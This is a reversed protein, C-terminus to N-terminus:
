RDSGGLEKGEPKSVRGFIPLSIIKLREENSKIYIEGFNDYTMPQLIECDIGRNITRLRDKITNIIKVRATTIEENEKNRFTPLVTVIGNLELIEEFLRMFDEMAQFQYDISPKMNHQELSILREYHAKKMISESKKMIEFLEQPPTPQSMQAYQVMKQLSEIDSQVITEWDVFLTDPKTSETMMPNLLNMASIVKKHLDVEVENGEYDMWKDGTKILLNGKEDIRKGNENITPREDCLVLLKGDM